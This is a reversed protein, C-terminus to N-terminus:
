HRKKEQLGNVGVLGSERETVVDKAQKKRNGSSVLSIEIPVVLCTFGPPIVWVDGIAVM